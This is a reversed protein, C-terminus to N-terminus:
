EPSRLCGAREIGTERQRESEGMIESNDGFKKLLFNRIVQTLNSYFSLDVSFLHFYFDVQNLAFAIGVVNDLISFYDEVMSAMFHM